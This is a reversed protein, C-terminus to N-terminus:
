QAEGESQNKAKEREHLVIRKAKDIMVEPFGSHYKLRCAHVWLADTPQARFSLILGGLTRRYEGPTM